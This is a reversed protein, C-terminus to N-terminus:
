ALADARAPDHVLRFVVRLDDMLSPAHVADIFGAGLLAFRPM